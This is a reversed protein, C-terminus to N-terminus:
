KGFQRINSDLSEGFGALLQNAKCSTIMIKCWRTIAIRFVIVALQVDPESWGSERRNLLKTSLVTTLRKDLMWSTNEEVGSTETNQVLEGLLTAMRMIEHNLATVNRIVANSAAKLEEDRDEWLSPTDTLLSKIDQLECFLARNGDDLRDTCVQLKKYSPIIFDRFSAM